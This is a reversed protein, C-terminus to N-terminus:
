SHQRSLLLDWPLGERLSLVAWRNERWSVPQSLFCCLIQQIVYVLFKTDLLWVYNALDLTRASHSQGSSTRDRCYRIEVNTLASSVMCLFASFAQVVSTVCLEASYTLELSQTQKWRGEELPNIPKCYYRVGPHFVGWILCPSNKTRGSM